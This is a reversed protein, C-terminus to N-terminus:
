VDQKEGNVNDNLTDEKIDDNKESVVAEKQEEVAKNEFYNTKTIFVFLAVGLVFMFISIFESTSLVGVSGREDDRLLEVFFRGVSYFIVYLSSIQGKKKFKGSLLVLIGFNMFNLISSILQTPIRMAGACYMGYWADTVKGYCCEAAICGIRGFGQGIAVSPLIIDLFEMGNVKKKKTFIWVSAIAGIIAGYVVLGYRFDLLMKPNRIVEKIEVILFLLKAGILAFIFGVMVSDFFIDPDIKRKKARYEGVLYACLIGITIMLGYTRITIPGINFLENTM